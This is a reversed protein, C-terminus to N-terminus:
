LGGHEIMEILAQVTAFAGVVAVAWAWAQWSRM